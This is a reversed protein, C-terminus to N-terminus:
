DAVEDVEDFSEFSEFSETSSRRGKASGCRVVRTRKLGMVGALGEAFLLWGRARASRLRASVGFLAWGLFVVLIMTGVLVIRVVNSSPRVELSSARM